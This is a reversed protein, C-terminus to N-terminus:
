TEVEAFDELFKRHSNNLKFDLEPIEKPVVAVVTPGFFPVAPTNARNFVNALDNVTEKASGTMGEIECAVPVFEQYKKKLFQHINENKYIFHNVSNVYSRVNNPGTSDGARFKKLAEELLRLEAIIITEDIQDSRKAKDELLKKDLERAVFTAGLSSVLNGKALEALGIEWFQSVRLFAEYVTKYPKIPTDDFALSTTAQMTEPGLFNEALKQQMGSGVEDKFSRGFVTQFVDMVRVSMGEVPKGVSELFAAFSKTRPDNQYYSDEAAKKAEELSANYKLCFLDFKDMHKEQFEELEKSFKINEDEAEKLLVPPVLESYKPENEFQSKLDSDLYILFYASSSAYGGISERMVTEEDADSVRMDNFKTWQDTNPNRIYAWYHGSGAVGQHIWVAYLFYPRTKKHDYAGEIQIELAHIRDQLDEVIRDESELDRSLLEANKLYADESKERCFDIVSKLADSLSINRGKYHTHERLEARLKELQIKLEAVQARIRTTEVKNEIMFRDVFIEKDFTVPTERKVLTKREPDHQVRSQQLMLVSPVKQFWLCKRALAPKSTSESVYGVVEQLVSAEIRDYINSDETGIPLILASFETDQSSEVTTGDERDVMLIEPGTGFFLKKVLDQQIEPNAKSGLEFGKELTKLILESFDAVDQQDGISIPQGDKGMLNKLLESPDVYKQNSLMLKVFLRQLQKMFPVAKGADEAAPPELSHPFSLVQKKVSPLMFYTQLMSNFYCTNGINKLGTLELQTEKKRWQPNNSVSGVSGGSENASQISAMLIKNMEIDENSVGGTGAGSNELSAKLAKELDDDVNIPRQASGAQGGMSALTNATTEVDM